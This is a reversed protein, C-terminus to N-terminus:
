DNQKREQLYCIANSMLGLGVGILMGLWFAIAVILLNPTLLATISACLAGFIAYRLAQTM